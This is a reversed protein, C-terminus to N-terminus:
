NELHYNYKKMCAELANNEEQCYYTLGELCDHPDSYNGGIYIDSTSTFCLAFAADDEEDVPQDCSLGGQCSYLSQLESACKTQIYLLINLYVFPSDSHEASCWSSDGEWTTCCSDLHDIYSDFAKYLGTKEIDKIYPKINQVYCADIADEAEEECDETTCALLTKYQDMCGIAKVITAYFTMSEVCADVENPEDKQCQSKITNTEDSSLKGKNFLSDLASADSGSNGSNNNNNSNKDDCAAFLLPMLCFLLIKKM